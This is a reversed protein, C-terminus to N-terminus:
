FNNETFYYIGSSLRDILFYTGESYIMQQIILPEGNEDKLSIVKEVQKTDTNFLVIENELRFSIRDGIIFIDRLISKVSVRESMPRPSLGTNYEEPKIGPKFDYVKKSDGNLDKLFVLPLGHYAYVIKDTDLDFFIRNHTVPQYGIPVIRNVMTKNLEGDRNFVGLVHDEHNMLPIIFRNDTLLVARNNFFEVLMQDIYIRKEEGSGASYQIISQLGPDLIWISDEDHSKYYHISAPTQLEGPGSGKTAAVRLFKGSESYVSVEGKVPDAIWFEDKVKEIWFPTGIFHEEQDTDSLWLEPTLYIKNEFANIGNVATYNFQDFEPIYNKYYSQNDGTCSFSIFALTLLSRKIM